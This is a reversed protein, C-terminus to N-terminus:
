VTVGVFTGRPLNFSVTRFQLGVRVPASAEGIAEHNKVEAVASLPESEIKILQGIFFHDAGAIAIGTTSFDMAVASHPAQPWYTYYQIKFTREIRSAIRRLTIQTEDSDMGHLPSRCEMCAEPTAGGSDMLFVSKCFLCHARKSARPASDRQQLKRIVQRDYQERKLPDSLISYAENVLAANWTDGGLDPHMKLKQMLTRYTAKIVAAPADPQVHLVRYYNRRNEMRTSVMSGYPCSEMERLSLTVGM